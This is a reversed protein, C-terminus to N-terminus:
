TSSQSDGSGGLTASMKLRREYTSMSYGIGQLFLRLAQCVKEPKEELVLLHETKIWTTQLPNLLAMLKFSRDCHIQVSSCMILTQCNFTRKVKTGAVQARQDFSFGEPVPENGSQRIERDNASEPPGGSSSSSENPGHLAKSPPESDSVIRMLSISTGLAAAAAAAHAAAGCDKRLNLTKRKIFSSAFLWLNHPNIRSFYHRYVSQIYIARQRDGPLSALYDASLNMSAVRRRSHTDLSLQQHRQRNSSERSDSDDGASIGDLQDERLQAQLGPSSHNSNGSGLSGTEDREASAAAQSALSGQVGVSSSSESQRRFRQLGTTSGFHHYMLYEVPTKESTNGSESRHRLENIAGELSENSGCSSAESSISQKGARDEASSVSISTGSMTLTDSNTEGDSTPNQRQTKKSHQLKRQRQRQQLQHQRFNKSLILWRLRSLNSPGASSSSVKPLTSQDSFDSAKADLNSTALQQSSQEQSSLHLHPFHFHSNGLLKRFSHRESPPSQHRSPESGEPMHRACPSPHRKEHHGHHGSLASVKFHFWETLSCRTVVPNILFLGDVLNPRVLALSCAIYAGAGVALAIFSRIRLQSCVDVICEVLQDVSPYKYDDPLTNDVTQEQKARQTSCSAEESIFESDESTKTTMENNSAQSSSSSSSSSSPNAFEQGPFNIHIMTFTRLMLKVEDCECFKAFQLESNLGLDHFTMIVPRSSHSLDLNATQSHSSQLGQRTVLLDGYQTIIRFSQSTIQGGILRSISAQNSNM